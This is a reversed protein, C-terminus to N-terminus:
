AATYDPAEDSFSPVAAPGTQTRQFFGVLLSTLAIVAASQELNLNLGYVAGLAIGSKVATVVYGLLADRTVYAVYVGLAASVAAMVTGVAEASGLGVSKLLGFALAATLVAEILGVVAAPERGFIKASAM